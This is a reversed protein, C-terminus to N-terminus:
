IAKPIGEQRAIEGEIRTVTDPPVVRVHSYIPKGEVYGSVFSPIKKEPELISEEELTVSKM